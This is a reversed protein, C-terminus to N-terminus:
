GYVLRPLCLTTILIECKDTNKYIRAYIYVCVYIHLQKIYGTREIDVDRYGIAEFFGKSHWEIKISCLFQM